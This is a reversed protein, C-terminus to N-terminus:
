VFVVISVQELHFFRAASLWFLCMLLLYAAFVSKTKSKKNTKKIKQKQISMTESAVARKELHFHKTGNYHTQRQQGGYYVSQQVQM